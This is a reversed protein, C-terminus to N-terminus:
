KPSGMDASDKSCNLHPVPAEGHHDQHSITSGHRRAQGLAHRVRCITPQLKLVHCHLSQARRGAHYHKSRKSIPLLFHSCATPRLLGCQLLKSSCEKTPSTPSTIVKSPPPLSPELAASSCPLSAQPLTTTPSTTQTAAASKPIPVGPEMGNSDTPSDTDPFLESDRRALTGIVFRELNTRPGGDGSCPNSSLSHSQEHHSPCGHSLQKPTHNLPSPRFENSNSNLFTPELVSGNELHPATSHTEPSSPRNINAQHQRLVDKNPVHPQSCNPTASAHVRVPAVERLRPHLSPCGAMCPEHMCAKTREHPEGHLQKTHQKSVEGLKSQRTESAVDLARTSALVNTHMSPEAVNHTPSQGLPHDPSFSCPHPPKSHPHQDTPRTRGRM